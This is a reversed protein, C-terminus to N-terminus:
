PGVRFTKSELPGIYGTDTTLLVDSFDGWRNGSGTTSQARLQIAKAEIRYGNILPAITQGPAIEYVYPQGNNTYWKWDETAYDRDYFNLWVCIPENTTNEILVKRTHQEQWNGLSKAFPIQSHSDLIKPREIEPHEDYHASWETRTKDFISSTEDRLRGFFDGWTVEGDSGSDLDDRIGWAPECFLKCLASTFFSGDRSNTWSFEGEMSSHIEVIGSNEFLLRNFVKWKAPRRRQLPTFAAINGCCNAAIVISRAGTSNLLNRIETLTIDGGSTALFRGKAPDFAGHGTYYFFHGSALAGATGSAYQARIKAPTVDNGTLISTSVRGEFKEKNAAMAEFFVESLNAFDRVSGEGVNEANSDIVFTIHLKDVEWSGHYCMVYENKGERPCRSDLHNDYIRVYCDRSEDYIEIFEGNRVTELFHFEVDDASTRAREVWSGDGMREFSGHTHVWKNENADAEPVFLIATVILWFLSGIRTANM